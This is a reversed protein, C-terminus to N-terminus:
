FVSVISTNEQHLFFATYFINQLQVLADLIGGRWVVQVKFANTFYQWTNDLQQCIIEVPLFLKMKILSKKLKLKKKIEIVVSYYLAQSISSTSIMLKLKEQYNRCGM